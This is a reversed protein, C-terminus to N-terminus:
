SSKTAKLGLGLDESAAVGVMKAIAQGMGNFDRLDGSGDRSLEPQINIQDLGERQYVIDTMRGETM